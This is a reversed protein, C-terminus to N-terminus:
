LSAPNLRVTEGLAVALTLYGWFAAPFVGVCCLLIGFQAVFGGLLGIVLSLAYNGLNARIFDINRRWAFGDGVVGSMATRVLAAPLYIALVLSFLMGVGYAGMMGLSALAGAGQAADEGHRMGGLAMVPLMALCGLAAVIALAALVHLLYVAALRLGESFLGGMDDWEPLPQAVGAAVNRTARGFYGLVFPIGILIASLLVFVGGILVKKIWGPDEFVVKFARGFDLTAAPAPLATAM